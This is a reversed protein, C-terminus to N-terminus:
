WLLIARRRPPTKRPAPVRWNRVNQCPAQSGNEVKVKGCGSWWLLGLQTTGLETRDTYPHGTM